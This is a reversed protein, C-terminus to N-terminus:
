PVTQVYESICPIATRLAAPSAIHLKDARSSFFFDRARLRDHLANRAVAPQEHRGHEGSDRPLFQLRHEAHVIGFAGRENQMFIQVFVVLLFQETRQFLCIGLKLAPVGSGKHAHFVAHIHQFKEVARGTGELIHREGHKGIQEPLPAVQAADLFLDENEDGGAAIRALRREFPEPVCLADLDHHEIGVVAHGFHLFQLHARLLPVVDVYDGDLSIEVVALRAHFLDETRFLAFLLEGFLTIQEGRRVGDVESPKRRLDAVIKRRVAIEDRGILDPHAVLDIEGDGRAIRCCERSM